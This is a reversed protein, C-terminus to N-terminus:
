VGRIKECKMLRDARDVDHESRETPRNQLFIKGHGDDRQAGIKVLTEVVGPTLRASDTLESQRWEGEYRKWAEWKGTDDLKKKTLKKTEKRTWSVSTGRGCATEWQTVSVGVHGLSDRHAGKAEAKQFSRSRRGQLQWARRAKEMAKRRDGIGEEAKARTRAWRCVIGRSTVWHAVISVGRIGECKIWIDQIKM